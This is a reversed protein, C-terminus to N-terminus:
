LLHRKQALIIVERVTTLIVGLRNSGILKGTSPEPCMGWFTDGWNNGEILVADGTSVLKRKLDEHRMFKRAVLTTMVSVKVEEWDDRLTLTKGLHKAEGPTKCRRIRMRMLEDEVKAAQYAHEVTPYLVRQYTVPAPWFNSLWRYEGSFSRIVM